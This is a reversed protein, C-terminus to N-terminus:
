GICMALIELCVFRKFSELLKHISPHLFYVGEFWGVAVVCENSGLSPYQM